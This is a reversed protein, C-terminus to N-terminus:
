LWEVYMSTAPACLYLDSRTRTMAVYFQRIIDDRSETEFQWGEYSKPSIDPIVYVADAEGGKVSHITGIVIAPDKTLSWLGNKEAIRIPYELARHKKRNIFELITEFDLNWVAQSLSCWGEALGNEEIFYEVENQYKINYDGRARKLSPYMVANVLKAKGHKILPKMMMLGMFSKFEEPSWLPLHGPFRRTCEEINCFQCPSLNSRYTQRVQRIEADEVKMFLDLFRRLATRQKDSKFRLPNWDGRKVRYPNHFPVGEAYMYAKIPELMYSCSALLMVSNIDDRQAMVDLAHEVIQDPQKYTASIYEVVGGDANAEFHKEERDSVQRIWKLSYDVVSSPLRYSRRLYINNEVPIEEDIFSSPDGGKFGYIAQDDDGVFIVKEMSQAWARILTFELKTFDQAEDFFGVRQGNPPGDMMVIGTEILSTFDWYGQEDCWRSWVDHFARVDDPWENKQIMKARLTQMQCMLNDGIFGDLSNNPDDPDVSGALELQYENQSSNFEAIKTEAITPKEFHRYCLAHLTGVNYEPIPLGRMVLERAAARTFSAVLIEHPEYKTLARQIQDMLWTTKGTGPPGFTHYENKKM